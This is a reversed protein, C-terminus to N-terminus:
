LIQKVKVYGNETDPANALIVDTFGGGPTVDTDERMINKVDGVRPIVDEETTVQSIESVYTLVSDLDKALGEQEDPSVAIRALTGLHEIDEKKLMIVM